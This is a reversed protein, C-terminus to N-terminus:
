FENSSDKIPCSLKAILLSVNRINESYLLTDMASKNSPM